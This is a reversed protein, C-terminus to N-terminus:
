TSERLGPSSAAVGQQRLWELGQQLFGSWDLREAEAARAVLMPAQRRIADLDAESVGASLALVDAMAHGVVRTLYAASLAQLAGGILWGAHHLRLATSLAQSSWEVLGLALAARGLEVAAAQLTESDWPCDWLRAMERLMLGNACTIVLLDLSPLPAAMVGAAVLWQTRQQLRQWGVRRLVELEAQWRGHLTELRRRATREPLVRGERALWATLPALSPTLAEARGDWVLLRQPDAAPWLSCLEQALDQVGGDVPATAPTELLLWLPQGAPLAELWRLDAARLPGRLHFLLLDCAEFASGWRWDCSCAPLAQGWHLRLPRGGQLAGVFAQQQESGPPQSSVLALNLPNDVPVLRLSELATRRTTPSETGNNGAEAGLQELQELVRECRAIWGDLSRPLRPQIPARRRSLLWWGGALGLGAVLTAPPVPLLQALGESVVAGGALLLLPRRWPPALLAAPFRPLSPPATM